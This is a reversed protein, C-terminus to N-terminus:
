DQFLQKVARNKKDLGTQLFKLFQSHMDKYSISSKPGYAAWATDGSAAFCAQESQLTLLDIM